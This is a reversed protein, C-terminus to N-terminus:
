TRPAASLRAGIADAIERDRDEAAKLYRLAANSSQHGMRAMVERLSGGASAAATGALHRLDHFRVSDDIGAERKARVWYPSFYRRLLLSGKASRFVMAEDGPEVFEHMHAELLDCIVPPVTVTRYAALSKPPGFTAGVGKASTLARDVRITGAELDVRKRDLAALEGFRLGAVAATWVMASFRPDIAEALREVEDWDLLPREAIRETSAGKIAVPNSRLMGDEVATAMITRFMRYVKAVTNASLGSRNMRGHWQRVDYATIEGLQAHRFTKLIHDLQSEYTERTRPRLQRDALWQKAFREFPVDGNAQEVHVGRKLETEVSSLWARAERKTAFTSDAAVQRGLHYYRAQYRGSSTQRITGFPRARAM